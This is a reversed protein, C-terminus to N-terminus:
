AGGRSRALSRKALARQQDREVTALADGATMLRSGVNALEADVEQISIEDAPTAAETLLTLAGDQVQAFGGELLWWRSGGGELEIRVPGIAMASLMPSQGTMVGHQGDWAPFSVYSVDGEFV